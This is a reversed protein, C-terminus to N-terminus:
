RLLNKNICDIILHYRNEDSNNRVSHQRCNNIEYINNEKLNNDVTNGVSFFVNKNTKIPIHIRHGLELIYGFDKHKPIITNKKLCTVLCRVIVLNNNNYFLKIQKLITEIDIQIHKYIDSNYSLIKKPIKINDELFFTLHCTNNHVFSKRIKNDTNNLDTNTLTFSHLNKFIVKRINEMNYSGINIFDGDFKSDIFYERKM